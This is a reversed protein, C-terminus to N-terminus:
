RATGDRARERVYVITVIAQDYTSRISSKVRVEEYADLREIARVADDMAPQEKSLLTVELGKGAGRTGSWTVGAPLARVLAGLPDHPNAPSNEWIDGLSLSLVWGGAADRAIGVVREHRFRYSRRVASMLQTFPTTTRSALQVRFGDGDREVGRLTVGSPLLPRLSDTIAEPTARPAYTVARLPPAEFPEAWPRAIEASAASPAAPWRGWVRVGWTGLPIGRCGDGCWLMLEKEDKYDARAVLSGNSGRRLRVDGIVTDPRPNMLDPGPDHVVRDFRLWGGTCTYHARRKLTHVERPALTLLFLNAEYASDTMTAFGSSWRVDPSHLQRLQRAYYEGKAALTDRYAGRQRESRELTVVLSDDADGAITMTEWPFRRGGERALAGLESQALAPVTAGLAYTGEISPCSATLRALPEWRPSEGDPGASSCAASLAVLAVTLSSVFRRLLRRSVRVSRAFPAEPTSAADTCSDISRRRTLRVFVPRLGGPANSEPVTLRRRHCCESDGKTLAGRM